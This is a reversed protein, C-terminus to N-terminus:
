CFVFWLGWKVSFIRVKRFDPRFCFCPSNEFYLNGDTLFHVFGARRVRVGNEEILMIKCFFCLNM